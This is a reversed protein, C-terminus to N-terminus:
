GSCQPMLVSARSAAQPASWCNCNRTTAHRNIVTLQKAPDIRWHAWPITRDPDVQPLGSERTLEGHEFWTHQGLLNSALLQEHGVEQGEEVATHCNSVICLVDHHHHLSLLPSWVRQGRGLTRQQAHADWPWPSYPYHWSNMPITFLPLAMSTFQKVYAIFVQLVCIQFAQKCHHATRHLPEHHMM